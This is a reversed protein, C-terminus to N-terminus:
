EKIQQRSWWAHPTWFEPAIAVRDRNKLVDIAYRTFPIGNNTCTTLVSSIVDYVIRGNFSDRFKSSSLMLKEPRLYRESRNNDPELFSSKLYRTLAYENSLVYEAADYLVTENPWKKQIRQCCKVLYKWIRRGFRKRWDLIKEPTGDSIHYELDALARFGRIMYYCEDDLDRYRWFARRAHSSCGIQHIKFKNATPGRPNNASSLDSTIYLEKQRKKDRYKLLGGILDGASGFHTLKLTIRSKPDNNDTLGTIVTLNMKKKPELKKNNKYNAVLSIEKHLNKTLTLAKNERKTPSSEDCTTDFSPNEAPADLELSDIFGQVKAKPVRVNTDDTQIHLAKEFLEKALVIFIPLFVTAAFVHFRYILGKTFSKDNSSFMSALRNMPIQNGVHFVIFNVIAEYTYRFGQPVNEPTATVQKGTRKDIVTEVEACNITQTVEMGYFEVKKYTRIFDGSDRGFSMNCDVFIKGWLNWKASLSIAPHQKDQSEKKKVRKRRKALRKKQKKDPNAKKGEGGSKESKKTLGWSQSLLTRLLRLRTWNKDLVTVMQLLLVFVRAVEAPMKEKNEELWEDAKQVSSSSLGSKEFDKRVM